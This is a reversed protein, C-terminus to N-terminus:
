VGGIDGFGEGPAGPAPRATRRWPSPSCPARGPIFAIAIASELKRAAANRFHGGQRARHAGLFALCGHAADEDVREVLEHPLTLFEHHLEAEDSLNM